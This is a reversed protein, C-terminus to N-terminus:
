YFAGELDPPAVDEDNDDVVPEEELDEEMEEAAGEEETTAPATAEAQQQQQQGQSDKYLIAPVISRLDVLNEYFSKEDEDEFVAGLASEELMQM